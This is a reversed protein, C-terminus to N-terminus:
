REKTKEEIDKIVTILDILITTVYKNPGGQEISKPFPSFYVNMTGKMSKQIIFFLSNKEFVERNGKLVQWINIDGDLEPVIDKGQKDIFSYAGTKQSYKVKVIDVAYSPFAYGILIKIDKLDIGLNYLSKILSLTVLNEVSFYHSRGRGEGVIFPKLLGRTQVWHYLTNANIGLLNNIDKATYLKHSAEHNM